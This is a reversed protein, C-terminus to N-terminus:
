RTATPSADAGGRERRASRGARGSPVRSTPSARRPRAALPVANSTTSCLVSRRSPNHSRITTSSPPRDDGVSRGPGHELIRPQLRPADLRRCANPEGSRQGCPARDTPDRSRSRAAHDVQAEVADAEDIGVPRPRQRPRGTQDLGTLQHRDDAPVAAALRREDPVEVAQQPRGLAADEVVTPVRRNLPRWAPPWPRCRRGPGPDGSRRRGRRRRPPTRAASAPGTALPPPDPPRRRARSPPRARPVRRALVRVVQASAASAGRTLMRGPWPSM